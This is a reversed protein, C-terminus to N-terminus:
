QDKPTLTYGLADALRHMNEHATKLHYLATADDRSNFLWYAVILSEVIQGAPHHGDLLKIPNEPLKINM